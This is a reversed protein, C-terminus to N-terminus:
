LSSHIILLIAPNFFDYLLLRYWPVMAKRLSDFEM